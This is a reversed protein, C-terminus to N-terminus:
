ISNSSICCYQEIQLLIWITLYNSKIKFIIILLSLSNEDCKAWGHEDLFDQFNIGTESASLRTAFGELLMFITVYLQVQCIKMSLFM